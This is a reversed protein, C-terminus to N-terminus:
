TAVSFGLGCLAGLMNQVPIKHHFALCFWGSKGFQPGKKFWPKLKAELKPEPKSADAKARTQAGAQAKAQAGAQARAQALAQARAQAEAPAGARARDAQNTRM